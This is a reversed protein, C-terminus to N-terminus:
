DARFGGKGLQRVQQNIGYHQMVEENEETSSFSIRGNLPLDSTFENYDM